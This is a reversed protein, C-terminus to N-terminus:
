VTHMCVLVYMLANLKICYWKAIKSKSSENTTDKNKLMFNDNKQNRDLASDQMCSIANFIDMCVKM